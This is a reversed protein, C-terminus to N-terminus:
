LQLQGFFVVSIADYENMGLNKKGAIVERTTLLWKEQRWYEFYFLNNIKLPWRYEM